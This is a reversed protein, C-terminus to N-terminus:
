KLEVTAGAEELQKKFRPNPEFTEKPKSRRVSPMMIGACAMFYSCFGTASLAKGSLALAQCFISPGKWRDACGAPARREIRKKVGNLQAIILPAIWRTVRRPM